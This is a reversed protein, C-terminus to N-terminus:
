ERGIGLESSASDIAETVTRGSFEWQGDGIYRGTTLQHQVKTEDTTQELPSAVSDERTLRDRLGLVAHRPILEEEGRIVRPLENDDVRRRTREVPEGLM